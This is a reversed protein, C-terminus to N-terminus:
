EKGCLKNQYLSYLQAEAKVCNSRVLGCAPFLFKIKMRIFHDRNNFTYIEFFYHGM